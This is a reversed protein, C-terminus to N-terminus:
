VSHAQRPQINTYISEFEDVTHGHSSIQTASTEQFVSDICTHGVEARMQKAFADASEKDDFSRVGPVCDQGGDAHFHVIHYM